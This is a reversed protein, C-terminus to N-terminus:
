EGLQGDLAGSPRPLVAFLQALNEVAFLDVDYSSQKALPASVHQARLDFRHLGDGLQDTVMEFADNGPGLGALGVTEEFRDVTQELGGFALGAAVAPEGGNTGNDEQEGAFEIEGLDIGM